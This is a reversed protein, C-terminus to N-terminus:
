YVIICYKNNITMILRILEFNFATILEVILYYIHSATFSSAM